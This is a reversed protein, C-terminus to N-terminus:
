QPMQGPSNPGDKQAPRRVAPRCLSRRHSHTVLETLGLEGLVAIM